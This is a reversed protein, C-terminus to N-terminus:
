GTLNAFVVRRNVSATPDAPDYPETEGKGVFPLREDRIGHEQILYARVSRARLQSLTLNYANPGTADAHGEIQIVQDQMLEDNLVAALRDLVVRADETLRFSDFEFQVRANISKQAPPESQKVAVAQVEPEPQSASDHMRIGRVKLGRTKVTSAPELMTDGRQACWLPVVDSLARFIECENADNLWAEQAAVPGALAALALGAGFLGSAFATTPRTM